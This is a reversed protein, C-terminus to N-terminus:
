AITEARGVVQTIKYSQAASMAKIRSSGAPRASTGYKVAALIGDAPMLEEFALKKRGRVARQKAV